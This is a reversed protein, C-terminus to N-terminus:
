VGPIVEACGMGIGKALLAPTEKHFFLRIGAAVLPIDTFRNLGCIALRKLPTYVGVSYTVLALPVSGCVMDTFWHGGGFLRPLCFFLAAGLMMRGRRKGAFHWILLTFTTLVIAHDSPYSNFSIDKAHFWTAISSLMFADPLVATPSH